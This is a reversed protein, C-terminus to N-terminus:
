RSSVETLTEHIRRLDELLAGILVWHADSPRTVVLQSTLAAPEVGIPSPEPVVRGLARRVDHGARHLQDAIAPVAPESDLTEEYRESFSRTMGITQTVLPRFTEILSQLEKLEDRHARGRPNLTLSEGGAAIAADAAALKPRLLRAQELLAALEAPTRRSVLADALHEMADALATGLDDVADHAPAVAVPPVIALNIVIGLAAGLLTEIVRDVAYGPTATGLALVLIASIAVQNATGPTMRLSWAVLLSIVTTVLIVWTSTGLALSLVSAIAVGAIVGVSREVAKAFSQNVSPQVILLAAIAAFVPPPGDILLDAILWSVCVAVASKVVQLL